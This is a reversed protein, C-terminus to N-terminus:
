NRLSGPCRRHAPEQGIHYPNLILHWTPAYGPAQARRYSCGDATTFYPRQDSDPPPTYDSKGQMSVAEVIPEAEATPGLCLLTTAVVAALKTLHHLM